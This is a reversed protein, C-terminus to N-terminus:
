TPETDWRDFAVDRLTPPVTAVASEVAIVSKTITAAIASATMARGNIVEIPPLPDGVGGGVVSSGPRGVRVSGLSAIVLADVIVILPVRGCSRRSFLSAIMRMMMVRSSPETMVPASIVMGFVAPKSTGFIGREVPLLTISATTTTFPTSPPREAGIVTTRSVVAGVSVTVAGVGPAIMFPSETVTVPFVSM